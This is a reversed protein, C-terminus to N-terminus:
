EPPLEGVIAPMSIRAALRGLLRAVALLVAVAALFVLLNHPALPSVPHVHTGGTVPTFGGTRM